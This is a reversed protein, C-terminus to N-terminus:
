TRPSITRLAKMTRRSSRAICQRRAQYSKRCKACRRMLPLARRAAPRSVPLRRGRNPARSLGSAQPRARKRLITTRMSPPPQRRQKRRGGVLCVPSSLVTARLHRRRPRLSHRSRSSAPRTRQRQRSRRVSLTTSRRRHCGPRGTPRTLSSQLFRTWRRLSQQRLKLQPRAFTQLRQGRVTLRCRHCSSAKTTPGSRMGRLAQRRHADAMRQNASAVSISQDM